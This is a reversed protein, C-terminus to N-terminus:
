FYGSMKVQKKYGSSKIAVFLWYKRLRTFPILPNHLFGTNVVKLLTIHEVVLPTNRPKCSVEPMASPGCNKKFLFLPQWIKAQLYFAHNQGLDKSTQWIPVKVTLDRLDCQFNGLVFHSCHKNYDSSTFRPNTWLKNKSLSNNLKCKEDQYGQPRASSVTDRFDHLTKYINPM